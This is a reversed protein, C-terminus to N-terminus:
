LSSMEYTVAALIDQKRLAPFAKLTGDLGHTEYTRFIKRTPITTGKIRPKGFCTDETITVVGIDQEQRFSEDM